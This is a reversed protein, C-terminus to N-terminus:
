STKLIVQTHKLTYNLYSKQVAQALKHSAYDKGFEIDFEILSSQLIHSFSKQMHNNGLKILSQDYTCVPWFQTLMSM